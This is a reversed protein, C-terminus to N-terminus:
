GLQVVIHPGDHAEDEEAVFLVKNDLPFPGKGLFFENSEQLFFTNGEVVCCRSDSTQLVICGVLKQFHYLRRIDAAQEFSKRLAAGDDGGAFLSGICQAAREGKCSRLYAVEGFEKESFAGM